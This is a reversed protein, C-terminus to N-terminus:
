HTEIGDNPNTVPVVFTKIPINKLDRLSLGKLFMKVYIALIPRPVLANKDLAYLRETKWNWRFTDQIKFQPRRDEM